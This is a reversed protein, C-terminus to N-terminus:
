SAVIVYNMLAINGLLGINIKIATQILTPECRSLMSSTYTIIARTAHVLQEYMYVPAYGGLHFRIRFFCSHCSYM